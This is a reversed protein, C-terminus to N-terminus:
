NKDWRREIVDDRRMSTRNFGIMRPKCARNRTARIRADLRPEGTALSVRGRQEEATRGAAICASPSPQYDLRYMNAYM